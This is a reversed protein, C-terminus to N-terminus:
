TTGFIGFTVIHHQKYQYLVYKSRTRFPASIKKEHKSILGPSTLHGLTRCVFLSQVFKVTCRINILISVKNKLPNNREKLHLQLRTVLVRWLPKGTMKPLKGCSSGGTMLLVCALYGVLNTSHSVTRMEGEFSLIRYGVNSFM